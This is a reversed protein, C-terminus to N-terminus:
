PPAPSPRAAAAGAGERAQEAKFEAVPGTKRPVTGAPVRERPVFLTIQAGIDDFIEVPAFRAGLARAVTKKPDYLDARREILWVRQYRPLMASVRKVDSVDIAPAGLNGVYRRAMGPAPFPRPLYVVEFPVTARDLYYDISPQVENPFALILDGAQARTAIMTVMERWNEMIKCYYRYTAWASVALVLSVAIKRLPPRLAFAGLAMLAMMLPALWEFLRALFIPKVFYSYAAMTLPAVSLVLVLHWALYRHRRWLYVIGALGLVAAPGKLAKGGAALVWASPLESPTFKIWFALRSIGAGQKLFMPLFPLWILLAGLGAAGVLLLPERRHGPGQLMVACALGVWIGLAIFIGTDHLWLTLGGAAALGTTWGWARRSAGSRTEALLMFSCFIAVTATLAQLAYPRADQAFQVNGANLALFLASLLGIRQALSGLRAARAAICMFFVTAVSALVSLSRLGAESSGALMRWGKLLTYYFPPHTEYLPVKTWLEELPVASFWASYAEDLWLSRSALTPLRVLLAILCIIACITRFRAPSLPVSDDLVDSLQWRKLGLSL